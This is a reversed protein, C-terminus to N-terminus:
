FIAVSGAGTRAAVTRYRVSATQREPGGSLITQLAGNTDYFSVPSEMNGGERRDADVAMRLGSDYFYATDPEQTSMVAAQEVLRSGPFFLYRISGEFVGARMGDFVMELRNGVTIARASKLSFEGQFTRTGEPHSPPFDFF